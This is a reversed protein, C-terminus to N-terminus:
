KTELPWLLKEMRDYDKCSQDLQRFHIEDLSKTLQIHFIMSIEKFNDGFIWIKLLFDFPLDDKSEMPLQIYTGANAVLFIVAQRANMADSPTQVFVQGKQEPSLKNYDMVGNRDLPELAVLRLFLEDTRPALDAEFKRETPEMSVWPMPVTFRPLKSLPLPRGFYFRVVQGEIEQSIKSDLTIFHVKARVKM